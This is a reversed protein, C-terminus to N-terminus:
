FTLMWVRRPLDSFRVNQVQAGLRQIHAELVRRRGREDQLKQSLDLRFKAQDQESSRKQKASDEAKAGGPESLPYKISSAGSDSFYDSTRRGLDPVVGSEFQLRDVMDELELERRISGALELSVEKLEEELENVQSEMDPNQLPLFFGNDGNSTNDTTHNTKSAFTSAMPAQSSQPHATVHTPSPSQSRGPDPYHSGETNPSATKWGFFSTLKNPGPSRPTKTIVSPDQIDEYESSSNVTIKTPKSPYLSTTASRQLGNYKSKPMTPFNPAVPDSTLRVHKPRTPSSSRPNNKDANQVATRQLNSPQLKNTSQFGQPILPSHGRPFRSSIARTLM